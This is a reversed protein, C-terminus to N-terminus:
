VCTWKESLDDMEESAITLFVRHDTVNRHFKIPHGTLRELRFTLFKDSSGLEKFDLIKAEWFHNTNSVVLKNFYIRKLLRDPNDFNADLQDCTIQLANHPKDKTNINPLIIDVLAIRGSCPKNLDVRFVGRELRAELNRFIIM